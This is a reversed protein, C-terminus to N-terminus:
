KPSASMPVAARVLGPSNRGSLRRFREAAARAKRRPTRLNLPEVRQRHKQSALRLFRLGQSGVPDVIEGQGQEATGGFHWSERRALSMECSSEMAAKSREAGSRPAGEAGKPGRQGREGLRLGRKRVLESSSVVVIVAGSLRVSDSLLQVRVSDSLM